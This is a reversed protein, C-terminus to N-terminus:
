LSAYSKRRSMILGGTIFIISLGVIYAVAHYYRDSVGYMNLAYFADTIVASPNIRNVIPAKMEVLIKMNAVMLGSLFGGAVVFIMLINERAKKSLSGIHGVFFGLSIGLITSLVATFLVLKEDGGFNVILIKTYYFLGIITISVQIIAASLLGALEYTARGVSSVDVRAGVDSQNAQCSEPVIVGAMCAMVSMMTILSYFYTVYPDKNDGSLSKSEVLSAAENEFESIVNSINAPDKKITEVIISIYQRYVSVVSALVSQATGTEKVELKVDEIDRLDIIGSVRDKDDEDKNLLEIAADYDVKKIDLIKSGDEYKLDRLSSSLDMYGAAADNEVVAVKITTSKANKYISNFAFYFLTGLALSFVLSWLIADRNRINIKLRSIFIHFFM